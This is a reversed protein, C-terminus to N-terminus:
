KIGRLINERDSLRTDLADIRAILDQLAARVDASQAAVSSATRIGDVDEILGMDFQYVRALM